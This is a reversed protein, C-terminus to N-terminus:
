TLGSLEKIRKAWHAAARQVTLREIPTAATVLHEDLWSQTGNYHDLADKIQERNTM